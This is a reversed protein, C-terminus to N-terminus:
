CGHNSQNCFGDIGRLTFQESSGNTVVEVMARTLIDRSERFYAMAWMGDALVAEEVHGDAFTYTISEVGDPLAGGAVYEGILADDISFNMSIGLQAQDLPEGYAHPHLLTADGGDLAAWEDCIIWTSGNGYLRVTTDGIAISGEETAGRVPIRLDSCSEPPQVPFHDVPGTSTGEGPVTSGEPKPGAPEDPPPTEAAPAETPTDPDLSADAPGGGAPVGERSSPDDGGAIVAGGVAVVAVVAAAAIAPVLWRRRGRGDDTIAHMLDARRQARAQDSLPREPPLNDNTM